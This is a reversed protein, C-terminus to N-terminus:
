GLMLTLAYEVNGGSMELGNRAQAETFGMETIRKIKAELPDVSTAATSVTTTTAAGSPAGTAAGSAMAPTTVTATTTMPAPAPMPAFSLPPMPGLGGSSSMGLQSMSALISAFATPNMASLGSLDNIASELSSGTVPMSSQNAETNDEKKDTKKTKYKEPKKMAALKRKDHLVVMYCDDILKYEKATATDLRLQRGSYVMKMADPNFEEDVAAYKKKIDMLTDTEEVDIESTKKNLTKIYVKM